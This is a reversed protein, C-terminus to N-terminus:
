MCTGIPRRRELSDEEWLAFHTELTLPKFKHKRPTSYIFSPQGKQTNFLHLITTREQHQIFSPHNEELRFVFAPWNDRASLCSVGYVASLGFKERMYYRVAGLDSHGVSG